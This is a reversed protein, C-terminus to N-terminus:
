VWVRGQVSNLLQARSKGGSGDWETRRKLESVDCMLYASLERVTSGLRPPPRAPPPPSSSATAAATGGPGGASAGASPALTPPPPPMPPSLTPSPSAASPTAAGARETATEESRRQELPALQGRLCRLAEEPQQAELLELYKQRLLLFQAALKSGFSAFGLDDILSEALAWDGALVGARFRAIPESLLLIGSEEQLLM